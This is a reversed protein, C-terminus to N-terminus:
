WARTKKNIFKFWYQELNRAIKPYNGSLNAIITVYQKDFKQNEKAYNKEALSLFNIIYEAILKEENILEDKNVKPCSGCMFHVPKHENFFRIDYHGSLKAEIRKEGAIKSLNIRIRRADDVCMRFHRADKCVQCMMPNVM